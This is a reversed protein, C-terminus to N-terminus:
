INIPHFDFLNDPDLLHEGCDANAKRVVIYLETADPNGGGGGNTNQCKHCISSNNMAWNILDIEAQNINQNTGIAVIGLYHYPENYLLFRRQSDDSKGIKFTIIDTNSLRWEIAALMQQLRSHM